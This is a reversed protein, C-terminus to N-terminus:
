NVFESKKTSRLLHPTVSNSLEEPLHSLLNQMIENKVEGPLRYKFMWIEITRKKEEMEIKQETKM